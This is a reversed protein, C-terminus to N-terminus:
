FTHAAVYYKTNEELTIKGFWMEWVINVYTKYDDM